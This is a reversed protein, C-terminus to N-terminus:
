DESEKFCKERAEVLAQDLDQSHLAVQTELRTYADDIRKSMELRLQRLISAWLGRDTAMSIFLGVLKNISDFPPFGNGRNIVQSMDKSERGMHQEMTQIWRDLSACQEELVKGVRGQLWEDFVSSM